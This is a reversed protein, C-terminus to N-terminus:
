APVERRLLEDAWQELALVDADFTERPARDLEPLDAHARCTEGRALRGCYPCDHLSPSM